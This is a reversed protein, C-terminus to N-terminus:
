VTYCLVKRGDLRMERADRRADRQRRLPFIGDDHKGCYRGCRQEGSFIRGGSHWFVASGRCAGVSVEQAEGEERRATGGSLHRYHLGCHYLCVGGERVTRLPVASVGAAFSAGGDPYIGGAYM